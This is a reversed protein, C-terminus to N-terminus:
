TGVEVLRMLPGETSGPDSLDIEGALHWLHDGEPDLLVQTVEWTREGTEHIQTWHALRAEPTFLLEEYEEFFPALAEEFREPTWAWRRQAEPLEEAEPGGPPRAVCRAAEEWDRQSLARVLQHLEARVRATFAKPDHLLEYARVREEFEKREEPTEAEELEPHLEPDLM